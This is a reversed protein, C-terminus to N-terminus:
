ELQYFLFRIRFIAIKLLLGIIRLSASLTPRGFIFDNNLLTKRRAFCYIQRSGLDNCDHVHSMLGFFIFLLDFQRYLLPSRKESCVM